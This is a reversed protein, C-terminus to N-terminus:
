FRMLDKALTVPGSFYKKVGEIYPADDREGDDGPVVHTLVVAKVHAKQAMKGIEEPTLHDELFHRLHAAREEDTQHVYFKKLLRAMGAPDIVETVLLDAGEALRTTTESPGTDGTFVISRAATDFRFAFSKDKGYAPTGVKFGSFHTNEVATVSVNGDKYIPGAQMVDHGIFIEHPDPRSVDSTRIRASQAFFQLFGQVADQTGPPGYVQIPKKRGRDWSAGMVTGMDANHDDHHHSIFVVDIDTYPIKAAALQRLVGNGADVLYPKGNVILANAPQSREVHAMPGGATGLTVWIAEDATATQIWFASVVSALGCILKTWM